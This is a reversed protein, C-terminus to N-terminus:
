IRSLLYPWRHVRVLGAPAELFSEDGGRNMSGRDPMRSVEQKDM